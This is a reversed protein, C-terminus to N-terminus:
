CEVFVGRLLTPQNSGAPKLLQLRGNRRELNGDTRPMPLGSSIGARGAGECPERTVGRARSEEGDGCTYTGNM